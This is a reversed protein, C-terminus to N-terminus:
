PEVSEEIDGEGEGDVEAEVDVEAFMSFDIVSDETLSSLLFESFDFPFEIREKSGECRFKSIHSALEAIEDDGENFGICDKAELFSLKKCGKLLIILNDRDIQARNLSLHKIDPVLNVIAMVEEKGIQANSLTLHSFLKCRKSVVALVRDLKDCSGLSLMCLYKFKGISELDIDKKWLLYRPLGLIVLNPCADAVYEFAEVTSFGPLKLFVAKGQSRNVVFKIFATESVRNSDLGFESVFREHIPYDFEYPFEPEFEPFILSKWCSPNLTEKHWSKCVFPIDLLLSEMDVKEFVKVLCDKDLDEWRRQDM